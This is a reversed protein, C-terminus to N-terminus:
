MLTKAKDKKGTFTCIKRSMWLKIEVDCKLCKLSCAIALADTLKVKVYLKRLFHVFIYNSWMNAHSLYYFRM